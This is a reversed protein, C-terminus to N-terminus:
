VFGRSRESVVSRRAHTRSGVFATCAGTLSGFAACACLFKGFAVCAGQFEQVGRLRVPAGSRRAPVAAETQGSDELQSILVMSRTQNDTEDLTQKATLQQDAHLAKEHSRSLTIAATSVYKTFTKGMPDSCELIGEGPSILISRPAMATTFEASEEHSGGSSIDLTKVPLESSKIRSSVGPSVPTSIRFSVTKSGPTNHHKSPSKQDCLISSLEQIDIVSSEKQCKESSSANQELSRAQQRHKKRANDLVGFRSFETLGKEFARERASYFFHDKGPMSFESTETCMDETVQPLEESVNLPQHPEGIASNESEKQSLSDVRETFNAGPGVTEKKVSCALPVLKRTCVEQTVNVDPMNAGSSHSCLHVGPAIGLHPSWRAGEYLLYQHFKPAPPIPHLRSIHPCLGYSLSQSRVLRCSIPSRYEGQGWTPPLVVARRREYGIDSCTAVGEVAQCVRCIVCVNSLVIGGLDIAGAGMM